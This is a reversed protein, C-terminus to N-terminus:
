GLLVKSIASYSLGGYYDGIEKQRLNPTMMLLYIGVRKAESRRNLLEDRNLGYEGCVMMVIEDLNKYKKALVERRWSIEEVSKSEYNKFIVSKKFLESGMIPCLRKKDYFVQTTKDVGAEVYSVYEKTSGFNNM